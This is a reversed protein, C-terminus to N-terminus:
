FHTLDPYKPMDLTPGYGPIWGQSGMNAWIQYHLYTIGLPTAMYIWYLCPESHTAWIAWIPGYGPIWGPCGLYGMDLVQTLGNVPGPSCSVPDFPRLIPYELTALGAWIAWIWAPCGLYGM